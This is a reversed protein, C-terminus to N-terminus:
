REGEGEHGLRAACFAAVRALWSRKRAREQAVRRRAPTGAPGHKGARLRAGPADLLAQLRLGEDRGSRRKRHESFPLPPRVPPLARM